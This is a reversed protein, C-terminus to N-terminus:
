NSTCVHLGFARGDEDAKSKLDMVQGWIQESRATEGHDIAEGDAHYLRGREAVNERWRKVLAADQPPTGLNGVLRATEAESAAWNDHLVLEVHGNSWGRSNAVSELEAQRRNAENFDIACVEDVSAAFNVPSTEPELVITGSPPTGQPSYSRGCEVAAAHSRTGEYAANTSLREVEAPTSSLIVREGACAAVPGPVGQGELRNAIDSGTQWRSPESTATSTTSGASGGCGSLLVAGLLALSAVGVSVSRRLHRLRSDM